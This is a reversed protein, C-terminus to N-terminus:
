TSEVFIKVAAGSISRVTAKFNYGQDLCQKLNHAQGVIGGVVNGKNLIRVVEISNMVSLDVQLTDGLNLKNVEGLVPSNIHTEFSYNGCDIRHGGSGGSGFNGSSGSGSM